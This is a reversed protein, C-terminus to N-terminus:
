PELGGGRETIANDGGVQEVRWVEECTVTADRCVGEKFEESCARKGCVGKFNRRVVDKEFMEEKWEKGRYEM